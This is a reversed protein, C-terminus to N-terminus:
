SERGPHVRLRPVPHARSADVPPGRPPAATEDVGLVAVVVVAALFIVVLVCALPVLRRGLAAATIVVIHEVDARAHESRPVALLKRALNDLNVVVAVDADAELVVRDVRSRGTNAFRHREPAGTSTRRLRRLRRTQTRAGAFSIGGLYECFASSSSTSARPAGGGRGVAGGRLAAGRRVAEVVSLCGAAAAAAPPVHMTQREGMAASSDDVSSQPCVNWASHRRFIGSCTRRAGGDRWEM